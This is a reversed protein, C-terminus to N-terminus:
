QGGPVGFDFLRSPSKARLDKTNMSFSLFGYEGATLPSCLTVKYAMPGVKSSNFAIHDRDTDHMGLFGGTM